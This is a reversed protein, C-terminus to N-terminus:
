KLPSELTLETGGYRFGTVDRLRFRKEYIVLAMWRGGDGKDWFWEPPNVPRYQKRGVEVTWLRDHAGKHVIVPLVLFETTVDHAKAYERGADSAFDTLRQGLARNCVELSLTDSAFSYWAPYSPSEGAVASTPPRACHAVGVLAVFLIFRRWGLTCPPTALSSANM